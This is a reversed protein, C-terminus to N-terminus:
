CNKVKEGGPQTAVHQQPVYRKNVMIKHLLMMPTILWEVAETHSVQPRTDERNIIELKECVALVRHNKNTKYGPM